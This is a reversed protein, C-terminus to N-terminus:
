YSHLGTLSLLAIVLSLAAALVSWRMALEYRGRGYCSAALVVAAFCLASIVVLPAIGPSGADAQAASRARLTFGILGLAGAGVAFWIGQLRSRRTEMYWPLLTEPYEGATGFVTSRSSSRTSPTPRTQIALM